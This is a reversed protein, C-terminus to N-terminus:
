HSYPSRGCWTTTFLERSDQPSISFAPQGDRFLNIIGNPTQIVNNGYPSCPSEYAGLDYSPGSLAPNGLIDVFTRAYTGSAADIAPSGPSLQFNTNFPPTTPTPATITGNVFLPNSTLNNTGPLAVGNSGYCLNNTYTKPATASDNLCPATPLADMINNAVVTDTTSNVNIEGDATAVSYAPSTIQNLYTTNYLFDVHNSQQSELGNSGNNFVLNNEVLTRGMYGPGFLNDSIVIGEGDTIQSFHITDSAAVTAAVNNSMTITSATVGTVFTGPPISAGNTADMVVDGNVVGATVPNATLTLTNGSTVATATETMNINVTANNGTFNQAGYVENDVIYNKYSTVADQSLSYYVGIGSGSYPSYWGCNSVVNGNITVYDNYRTWICFSPFDHVYNNIIQIHNGASMFSIGDSAAVTSAVPQSLTVTWPSASSLATVTTAPAIAGFTTGDWVAMGVTVGAAAPSATLTLTSGSTVAAATEFLGIPTAYGIIGAANQPNNQAWNSSGANAAASAWTISGGPGVVELGQITIYSKNNLYITNFSRTSSIIPRSRGPFGTFTIYGATANGSTVMILPDTQGIGGGYGLGPLIYVTDGPQVVNAAKQLTDFPTGLSLGDNTDAGIASDVYWTTAHASVSMM